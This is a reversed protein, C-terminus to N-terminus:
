KCLLVQPTHIGKITFHATVIQLPLKELIRETEELLKDALKREEETGRRLIVVKNLLALAYEDGSERPVQDYYYMAMSLNGTTHARAGLLLYMLAVFTLDQSPELFQDPPIAMVCSMSTDRVSSMERLVAVFGAYLYCYRKLRLLRDRKAVAVSLWENPPQHEGLQMEIDSGDGGLSTSSAVRGGESLFNFAKSTTGEPLNVYGSILYGFAYAEWHSFWDIHLRHQGDCVVIDFTGDLNWQESEKTSQADMLTYVDNLKKVAASQKGSYILWLVHISLRIISLQLNQRAAKTTSLEVAETLLPEIDLDLNNQQVYHAELLCTYEVLEFDTHRYALRRLERMTNIHQTIEHNDPDPHVNRLQTLLFSYEWILIERRNETVISIKAYERVEDLCIKLHARSAKLSTKALVLAQLQLMAFRLDQYEAV